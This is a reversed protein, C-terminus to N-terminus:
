QMHTNGMRCVARKYSVTGQIKFAVVVDREDVRINVTFRFFDDGIGEFDFNESLGDGGVNEDSRVTGQRILTTQYM